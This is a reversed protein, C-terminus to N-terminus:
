RTLPIEFECRCDLLSLDPLRIKQCNGRFLGQVLPNVPAVASVCFAKCAVAYALPHLQLTDSREM